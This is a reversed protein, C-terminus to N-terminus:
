IPTTRSIASTCPTAPARAALISPVDDATVPGYAIRGESTEVEVLPELFLLGRSGNRVVEHGAAAFAAAVEDAGMSRAASDRPVFVRTM